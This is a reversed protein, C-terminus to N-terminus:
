RRQSRRANGDVSKAGSGEGEGAVIKPCSGYSHGTTIGVGNAFPLLDNGHRTISPILGGLGVIKTQRRSCYDLVLRLAHRIDPLKRRFEAAVYPIAILEGRLLRGGTELHIYSTVSVPKPRVAALAAEESGSRLHPFARFVDDITRPHVIFAFDLPGNYDTQCSANSTVAVHHRTKDAAPVQSFGGARSTTLSQKREPM